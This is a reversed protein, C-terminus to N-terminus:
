RLINEVQNQYRRLFVEFHDLVPNRTISVVIPTGIVIQGSFEHVLKIRLYVTDKNPIYLRYRIRNRNDIYYDPETEFFN